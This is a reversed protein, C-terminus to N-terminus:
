VSRYVDQKEQVNRASNQNSYEAAVCALSTLVVSVVLAVRMAGLENCIDKVHRM